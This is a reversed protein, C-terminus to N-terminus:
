QQVQLRKMKQHQEKQVIFTFGSMQKKMIKLMKLVFGKDCLSWALTKAVTMSEKMVDGQMGTLKLELLNPALYYKTQIPIIGGGGNCQGYAVFLM